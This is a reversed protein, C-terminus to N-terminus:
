IYGKRNSLNHAAALLAAGTGSGDATTKLFINQAVEEGLIEVIAEDVYDRFLAFGEYLGGEVAVVSRKSQARLRGSTSPGSGDRGIKKLIGVIGAAVLRAARRTVIDCVKVVLRRTKLPIDPIQFPM